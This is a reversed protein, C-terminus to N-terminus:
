RMKRSGSRSSPKSQRKLRSPEPLSERFHPKLSALTQVGKDFSPAGAKRAEIETPVSVESDEILSDRGIPRAEELSEHASPSWGRDASPHTATPASGLALSLLGFGFGAGTGFWSSKWLLNKVGQHLAQASNRMLWPTKKKMM